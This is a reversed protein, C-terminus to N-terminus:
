RLQVAGADASSTSDTAATPVERSCSAAARERALVLFESAADALAEAFAVLTAPGQFTVSPGFLTLLHGKSELRLFPEGDSQRASIVTTQATVHLFTTSSM